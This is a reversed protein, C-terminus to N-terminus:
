LKDSEKALYEAVGQSSAQMGKDGKKWGAPCVEGNTEFFEVADFLRLIEEINRGFPLDNIIESRIIGKKDIIFAARLAVGSSESHLIGYDKCIKHNVDAILSYKVEGIGGKNVSTNRWAFHTYQSDVSVAMVEIDRKHFEEIRHDLAILESPCVFTFDLPYFFLLAYKNKITNLLSFEEIVQGDALVAPAIFDPAPKNVLVTM